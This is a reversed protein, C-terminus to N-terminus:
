HGVVRAKWAKDAWSPCLFVFSMVALSMPAFLKVVRLSFRAMNSNAPKEPRKNWRLLMYKDVAYQLLLGLMGILSLWPMVPTFLLCCLFTKLTNAYRRSNNMPSPEYM